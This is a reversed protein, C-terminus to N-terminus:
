VAGGTDVEFRRLGALSVLTRGPLAVVRALVSDCGRCRLTMGPGTYTVAEALPAEMGCGDCVGVITTVEVAFLEQLDGAAANGDVRQEDMTM